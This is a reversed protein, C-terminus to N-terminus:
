GRKAGFIRRLQSRSTAVRTSFPSRRRRAMNRGMEELHDLSLRKSALPLVMENEWLLHREQDRAFLNLNDFFFSASELKKRHLVRKLDVVILRMLYSEVAHDRNLEELVPEIRDEPLCIFKLVRFLDLEEDEHHLLLDSTFFNLLPEGIEIVSDM